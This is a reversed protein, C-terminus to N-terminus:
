RDLAGTYRSKFSGLAMISLVLSHGKSTRANAIGKTKLLHILSWFIDRFSHHVIWEQILALIQMPQHGVKWREHPLGSFRFLM